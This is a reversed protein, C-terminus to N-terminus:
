HNLIYYWNIVLAVAENYNKIGQEIKNVKLYANNTADQLDSLKQKQLGKYYIRRFQLDKIVRKDIKKLYEHYDNLQAADSLFYIMIFLYGSYKLRRDESATCIFFASFNAEAESAVGYQHSKEHALAFPYELPLIYSNLHIENFFPGFYGNVGAKAFFSSFIMTKPGDKGRSYSIGLSKGNKLYSESILSDISRYDSKSIATYNLNTNQILTDLISRFVAESAEPKDWGIRNELKSRFYNYGWLIYFLSYLVAVLQALRLAYWGPKIRRFILLILGSIFLLIIIMWFIDWLSFPIHNSISTLLKEIYPYVGESYYSEVLEPKRIALRTGMFVCFALFFPWSILIIRKLSLFGSKKERKVM